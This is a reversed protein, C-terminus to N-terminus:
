PADAFLSRARAVVLEPREDVVFHGADVLEVPDFGAVLSRAIARDRRGLLLRAPVRLPPVSGGGRPLDVIRRLYDRYLRQTARARDPARFADVFLALDEPSVGRGHTDAGIARAVFDTRQLLMPGLPSALVAAYWARWADAALRPSPRVWPHPTSIALYASVREPWRAALLFGAYGGWDHGILRVREIGLADLLAIQDRAFTEPDMGGETVETRGFGRLDPMLVRHEDSLLPGVRRWLHSTQPWGHLLLLPSADVSGTEALHVRLGGADVIRHRIV